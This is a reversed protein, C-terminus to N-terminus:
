KLILKNNKIFEKHNKRLSEPDLKNKELQNRKNELQTAELFHKYDKFKFHM